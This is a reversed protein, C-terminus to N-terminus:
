FAPLKLCNPYVQGRIACDILSITSKSVFVSCILKIKVLDPEFCEVKKVLDIVVLNANKMYFVSSISKRRMTCGYLTGVCEFSVSLIPGNDTM